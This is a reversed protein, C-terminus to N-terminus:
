ANNLSPIELLIRTGGGPRTEISFQGGIERMREYMNDLGNGGGNRSTGALGRGNDEIVIQLSQDSLSIRLWVETAASHRIVNNLTEKVVLFLNHRVEAPVPRAPPHDPLNV